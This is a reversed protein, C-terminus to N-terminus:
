LFGLRRRPEEDRAPASNLAAVLHAQGVHDQGGRAALRAAEHVVFAADSLPRGVLKRALEALNADEERPIGGLLATLLAEIEEEVAPGVEIIHDFRGRRLIAPDIMDLRNTM